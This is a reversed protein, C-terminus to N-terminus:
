TDGVHFRSCRLRSSLLMGQRLWIALVSLHILRILYKIAVIPTYTTSSIPPVNAALPPSICRGVWKPTSLRWQGAVPWVGVAASSGLKALTPDNQKIIISRKELLPVM